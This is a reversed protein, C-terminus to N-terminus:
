AELAAIIKAKAVVKRNVSYRIQIVNNKSNTNVCLVSVLVFKGNYDAFASASLSKNENMKTKAKIILDNLFDTATSM